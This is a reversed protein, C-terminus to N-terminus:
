CVSEIQWYVNLYTRNFFSYATPVKFFKCKGIENRHLSTQRTKFIKNVRREKQSIGFCLSYGKFGTLRNIVTGDVVM